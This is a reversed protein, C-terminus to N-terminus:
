KSIDKRGKGIAISYIQFELDGKLTDAVNVPDGGGTYDGSFCVFYANM